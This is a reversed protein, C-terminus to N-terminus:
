VLKKPYIIGINKYVTTRSAGFQRSVEAIQIDLDRRLAKIESAGHETLKPKRDSVRGKARAAPSGIQSRERILCHEFEALASFSHLVPKGAESGTEIKETLSERGIGCRELDAGIQVLYPLSRGLRNLRWVGSTGGARLQKPCRELELSTTNKSSSAEENIARSDPQKLAYRQLDLRQDNTSVRAYGIRQNM